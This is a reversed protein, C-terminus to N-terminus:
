LEIKVGTNDFDVVFVRFHPFKSKLAKELNRSDDTYAMSFLTSGSGSLTSMLAGEKLATKQVDFLEPMQKMRYKQHVQDNSAHKLMEWNESMFAATLLSSHSINFITDEKSYKFPLAKRSMATSIARNPVVIVAKLSKPIAKNIYKVENEQVCAVNFGGMVAPTINDPHSEYALALNLLKDRELKIGEIAYASAIASVIVASSSGLGRSLPIENQFEFRFFRKKHSLNQYFDNFISIFMNNDKLAPNNAGEGKLSVSHFKSPRIIVQNKLSVALGLCDFGPGLNASTAPVSVKM